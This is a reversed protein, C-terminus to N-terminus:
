RCNLGSVAMISWNKRQRPLTIYHFIRRYADMAAGIDFTINVYHMNYTKAQEQVIAFVKAITSFSHSLHILLRNRLLHLALHAKVRIYNKGHAKASKLQLLLGIVERNLM